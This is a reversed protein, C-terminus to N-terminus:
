SVCSFVSCVKWLGWNTGAQASGRADDSKPVGTTVLAAVPAVMLMVTGLREDGSDNVAGEDGQAVVWTVTAELPRATCMTGRTLGTPGAAACRVLKLPKSSVSTTTCTSPILSSPSHM